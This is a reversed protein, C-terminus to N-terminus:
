LHKKFSTEATRADASILILLQFGALFRTVSSPPLSDRFSMWQILEDKMSYNKM